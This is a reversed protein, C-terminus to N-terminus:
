GQEEKPNIVAADFLTQKKRHKSRKIVMVERREPQSSRAWVVRIL